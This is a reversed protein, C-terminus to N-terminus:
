GEARMRGEGREDAEAVRLLALIAEAPGGIHGGVQGGRDQYERLSAMMFDHRPGGEGHEIDSFKLAGARMPIRLEAVLRGIIPDAKLADRTAQYHEAEIAM